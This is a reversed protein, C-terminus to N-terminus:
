SKVKYQYSQGYGIQTDYYVYREIDGTNWMWINQETEGNVDNTNKKHIRYMVVESYNKSGCQIGAYSLIKQAALQQM